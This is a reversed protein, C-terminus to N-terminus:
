EIHYSSTGAGGRGSLSFIKGPLRIEALTLTAPVVTVSWIRLRVRLVMEVWRTSTAAGSREEASHIVSAGDAHLENPRQWVSGSVFKPWTANVRTEVVM